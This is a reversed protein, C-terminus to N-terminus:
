SLMQLGLMGVNLIDDFLPKTLIGEWMDPYISITLVQISTSVHLPTLM